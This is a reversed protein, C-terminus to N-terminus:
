PGVWVKVGDDICVCLLVFVVYPNIMAYMPTLAVPRFKSHCHFVLIQSGSSEFIWVYGSFGLGQLVIYKGWEGRGPGGKPCRLLGVFM